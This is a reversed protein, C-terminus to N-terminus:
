GFFDAFAGDITPFRFTFGRAELAAPVVRQSTFLMEDAQQGGLALKAAFRPLPIATPRKLAGGLSKTFAANTVPNPATCNFPGSLEAELAFLISAVVDALHIWSMYQRGDGLRGGVGMKFPTLMKELAGGEPSLVIGIRPHCVRIGAERAPQAADEWVQCVEALFGEGAPADETLVRDGQSGYFGVASASVLAAPKRKLSALTSCLLTTGELRSARIRAKRADSWRGAVSEGALHVVADLAELRTADLTGETLDWGIDTESKPSRTISLAEAGRERLRRALESGILGTAGTIAVRKGQWSTAAQEM